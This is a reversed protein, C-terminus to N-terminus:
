GGGWGEGVLPPITIVPFNAMKAVGMAYDMAPRDNRLKYGALHRSTWLSPAKSRVSGIAALAHSAAAQARRPTTVCRRLRVRSDGPV